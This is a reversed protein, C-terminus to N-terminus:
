QYVLFRQGHMGPVFCFSIGVTVGFGLGVRFGLGRVFVTSANYSMLTPLIGDVISSQLFNVPHLKGPM